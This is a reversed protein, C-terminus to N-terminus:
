KLVTEMDLWNPGQKVEVALPMQIEYGFRELVVSKVDIMTNHMLEALQQQEGPYTDAVLNDHVENFLLSKVGAKQMEWFVAVFACPVIDATAFGQVPWNVIQTRQSIYGYRNKRCHPFNYRRGSPIIMHKNAAVFECLVDQWAKIGSYKELFAKYYVEQAPAGRAGGYLPKFTDSKAEQRETPRGAATLTDATFRHVDVGDLIDQKAVECGSIEAAVRFELQGYDADTISGGPWRSIVVRRIPFTGGRPQNHFNPNRSSLRGTATVCQMFETHLLNDGAINNRIGAVFNSLYHTVANRRVMKTLFEKAQGEANEALEELKDKNTIFGTAATDYASTPVCGLGAISRPLEPTYLLGVGSCEICRPANKYPKGLKTLKQIKGTGKCNKCQKAEMKLTVETMGNVLRGFTAKDFTRVKKKTKKGYKLESGLNFIDAWKRKDVVRRSYIFASLDTPSDLNIDTDGVASKVTASIAIDLAELEDQYDKELIDLEKVDIKVGNKECHALVLSTDHMLQEIPSIM